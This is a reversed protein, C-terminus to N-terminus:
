IDDKQFCLTFAVSDLSATISRNSVSKSRLFTYLHGLLFYGVESSNNFRISFGM